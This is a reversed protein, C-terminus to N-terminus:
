KAAAELAKRQEDVPPLGISKRRADLAPPDETPFPVLAGDETRKFQTGFRQKKGDLLLVRDQLVAYDEPSADGREAAAHLLPLAQKQLALSTTRQVILAAAKAGDEGVVARGPWGNMALIGTMRAAAVADPKTALALLERRLARERIPPPNVVDTSRAPSKACATLALLLVIARSIM